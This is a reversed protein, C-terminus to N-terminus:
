KSLCRYRAKIAASGERSAKSTGRSDRNLYELRKKM